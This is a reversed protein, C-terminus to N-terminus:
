PLPSVQPRGNPSTNIPTCLAAVITRDLLTGGSSMWPSHTLGAVSGRGMGGRADIAAMQNACMKNSEVCRNVIAGYLDTDVKAYRHIPERQSPEELKLYTARDLTSGESKNSAVWKDFDADSLAHFKFRM